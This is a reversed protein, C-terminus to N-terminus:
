QTSKILTIKIYTDYIHPIYTNMETRVFRLYTFCIAQGKYKIETVLIRIGEWAPVFVSRGLM